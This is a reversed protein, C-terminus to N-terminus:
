LLKANRIRRIVIAQCLEPFERYLKNSNKYGCRKAIITIHAPEDKGLEMELARRADLRRKALEMKLAQKVNLKRKTPAYIKAWVNFRATVQDCLQPM